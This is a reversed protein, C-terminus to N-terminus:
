GNIKEKDEFKTWCEPCRLYDIGVQQRCMPCIKTPPAPKEPIALIELLKKETWYTGHPPKFGRRRLDVLLERSTINNVNVECVLAIIKRKAIETLQKMNEQVRRGM